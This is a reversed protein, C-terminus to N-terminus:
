GVQSENERWGEHRRTPGAELGNGYQGRVGGGIVDKSSGDVGMTVDPEVPCAADLNGTGPISRARSTGTTEVLILGFCFARWRGVVM